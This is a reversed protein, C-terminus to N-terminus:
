TIAPVFFITAYTETLNLCAFDNAEYAMTVTESLWRVVGPKRLASALPYEGLIHLLCQKEIQTTDIRVSEESWDIRWTM